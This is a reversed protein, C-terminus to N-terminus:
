RACKSAFDDSREDTEDKRDVQSPRRNEDLLERLKALGRATQSKVTGESCGIMKATEAVDCDEFYRLVLVARQGPPVQDLVQRVLLREDHALQDIRPTDPLESCSRERRWPRRSEDIVGRVLTTRVFSEMSNRSLVREWNLYLKVLATQVADDARDWDGCLLFATQRLRRASRTVFATFEDDRDGRMQEEL